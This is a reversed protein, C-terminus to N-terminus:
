FYVQTAGPNEFFRNSLLLSDCDGWTEQFGSAIRGDRIRRGLPWGIPPTLRQLVITYPLNDLYSRTEAKDSRLNTM